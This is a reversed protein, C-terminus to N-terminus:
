EDANWARMASLVAEVKSRELNQRISGYPVDLTLLTAVDVLKDVFEESVGARQAIRKWSDHARGRKLPRMEHAEALSLSKVKLM